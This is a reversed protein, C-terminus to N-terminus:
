KVLLKLQNIFLFYKLLVTKVLLALMLMMKKTIKMDVLFVLIYYLSVMRKIGHYNKWPKSLIMISVEGMCIFHTMVVIVLIIFKVFSMNQIKIQGRFLAWRITLGNM